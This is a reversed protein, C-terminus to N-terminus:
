LSFKTGVREKLLGWGMKVGREGELISFFSGRKPKRTM